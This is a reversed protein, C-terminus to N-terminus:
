RWDNGCYAIFDGLPMASNEAIEDNPRSRDFLMYQAVDDHAFHGRRVIVRRGSPSVAAISYINDASDGVRGREILERVTNFYQAM